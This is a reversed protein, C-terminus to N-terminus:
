MIPKLWPADELAEELSLRIREDDERITKVMTFLDVLGGEVFASPDYNLINVEVPRVADDEGVIVERLEAAMSPPAAVQPIRPPSLLSRESLASLGCLPLNAASGEEVFFREKVVPDLAQAATKAFEGRDPISYLLTRGKPGGIRKEILGREALQILARNVSARSLGTRAELQNATFGHPEAESIALLATKTTPSLRTKKPRPVRKKTHKLRLMGPIFFEGKNTMFGINAAILEQRLYVTVDSLRVLVHAEAADAVITAQRILSAPKMEQLPEIAVVPEGNVEAIEMSFSAVTAMPLSKELENPSLSESKQVADRGLAKQLLEYSSNM